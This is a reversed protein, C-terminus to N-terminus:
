PRGGHPQGAQRRPPGRGAPPRAGAGRGGAGGAPGGDPLPGPGSRLAGDGPGVGGRGGGGDLGGGRGGRASGRGADEGLGAPRRFEWLPAALTPGATLPTANHHVSQESGPAYVPVINTHPLHAAAQAENKLRQLQKPDPTPAFPLGKPAGRRGLSIQEAE